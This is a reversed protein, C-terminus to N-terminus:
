NGYNNTKIEQIWYLKPCESLPETLKSKLPCGCETCFEGLFSWIRQLFTLNKKNKSNFPCTRCVAYRKWFLLRNKGM